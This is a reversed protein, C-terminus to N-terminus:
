GDEMVRRRRRIGYMEAALVHVTLKAAAYKHMCVITHSHLFELKVGNGEETM